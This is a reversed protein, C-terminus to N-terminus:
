DSGFGAVFTRYFYVRRTEHDILLYRVPKAEDRADTLQIHYCTPVAVEAPNWWAFLEPFEIPYTQQERAEFFQQCDIQSYTGYAYEQEIL